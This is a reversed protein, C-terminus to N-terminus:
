VKAATGPTTEISYDRTLAIIQAATAMPRIDQAQTQSRRFALRPREAPSRVIRGGPGAWAGYLAM